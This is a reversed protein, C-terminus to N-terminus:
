PQVARAVRTRELRKNPRGDVIRRRRDNQRRQLDAVIRALDHGHEAAYADRNKWVEAIIKDRYM